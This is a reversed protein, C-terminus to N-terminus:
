GAIKQTYRTIRRKSAILKGGRSGGSTRGIPWGRRRLYYPDVTEPMGLGILFARIDARGVLLDGADREVDEREHETTITEMAAEGARAISENLPSPADM